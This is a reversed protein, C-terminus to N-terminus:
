ARCPDSPRFCKRVVEIAHRVKQDRARGTGTLGDADVRDDTRQEHTGMGIFHLKQQNVRFFDFERRKVANRM